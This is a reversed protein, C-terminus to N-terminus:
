RKNTQDDGARFVLDRLVFYSLAAIAVLAVLAGVLPHVGLRMLSSVIGFHLGYMAAWALVFRGLSARSPSRFVFSAQTVFGVSIGAVLSVLSALALALDLWLMLAYVAYSLLTNIGGAVVFRLPRLRALWGALPALSRSSM